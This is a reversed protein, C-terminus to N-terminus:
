EYVLEGCTPCPYSEKTDIDTLHAEYGCQQCGYKHLKRDQADRQVRSYAAAFVLGMGALVAAGGAAIRVVAELSPSEALGLWVILAGVFVAAVGFPLAWTAAGYSRM